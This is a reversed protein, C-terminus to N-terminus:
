GSPGHLFKGQRIKEPRGRGNRAAIRKEEPLGELARPSRVRRSLQPLYTQGQPSRRKGYLVPARGHSFRPHVCRKTLQLLNLAWTVGARCGISSLRSRGRATAMSNATRATTCASSIETAAALSPRARATQWATRRM